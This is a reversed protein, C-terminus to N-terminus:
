IVICIEKAIKSSSMVHLVIWQLWWKRKKHWFEGAIFVVLMKNDTSLLHSSFLYIFFPWRLNFRNACVSFHKRKRNSCVSFWAPARCSSRTVLHTRHRHLVRWFFAYKRFTCVSCSFFAEELPSRSAERSTRWASVADVRRLTDELFLPSRVWSIVQGLRRTGQEVAKKVFLTWHSAVCCHWVGWNSAQLTARYARGLTSIAAFLWCRTGSLTSRRARVRPFSMM